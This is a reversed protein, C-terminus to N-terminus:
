SGPKAGINDNILIKTPRSSPERNLKTTKIGALAKPKASVTPEAIALASLTSVVTQAVIITKALKCSPYRAPAAARGNRDVGRPPNPM